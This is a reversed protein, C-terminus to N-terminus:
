QGFAAVPGGASGIAFAPATAACTLTPPTRDIKFSKGVPTEDDGANNKSAAYVEHQGDSAVDTGVGVYPCAPPLDGFLTPPTAPDLVCRTEAVGSGGSDDASVSVGVPETYWGNSGNPAPPSLSITTTPAASESPTLEASINLRFLDSRVAARHSSKRRGGAPHGDHRGGPCRWGGRDMDRRPTGSSDFLGLRDGEQVPFDVDAFSNLSGPTAVRGTVRWRRHLPRLRRTPLDDHEAGSPRFRSRLHELRHREVKGAARRLGNGVCGRDPPVVGATGAVVNAGSDTRGITVTPSGSAGGVGCVAVLGVLLLAVRGRSARNLIRM